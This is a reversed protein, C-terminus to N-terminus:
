RFDVSDLIGDSVLSEVKNKSIHCLRKHRLAWSNNHYIKCKTGHSKVSLSKGYTTIMGLLYLNDHDMLSSTWVINSIFSSKYESNGFLYLYSSKELYSVLILNRRFSPVVFTDKLDLYFGTCLLLRFSGVVEVEVSKGDGVYIYREVDNPKWYNLQCKSPYVCMFYYYFIFMYCKKYAIEM